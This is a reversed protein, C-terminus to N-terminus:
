KKEAECERVLGKRVLTGMCRILADHEDETWAYLWAIDLTDYYNAVVARCALEVVEPPRIKEPNKHKKSACQPSTSPM